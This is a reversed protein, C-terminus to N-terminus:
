TPRPRRALTMELYEDSIGLERTQEAVYDPWDTVLTKPNAMFSYYATAMKANALLFDGFTKMGTPTATLTSLDVLLSM